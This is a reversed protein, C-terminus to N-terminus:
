GGEIDKEINHPPTPLPIAGGGQSLTRQWLALTSIPQIALTGFHWLALTGTIKGMCNKDM